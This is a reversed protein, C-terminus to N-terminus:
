VKERQVVCYSFHLDLFMMCLQVHNSHIVPIINPHDRNYPHLISLYIAYSYYSAIVRSIYMAVTIICLYKMSLVYSIYSALLSAVYFVNPYSYSCMLYTLLPTTLKDVSVTRNSYM